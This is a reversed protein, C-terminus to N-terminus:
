FGPIAKKGGTGPPGTQKQGGPFKEYIKAKADVPFADHDALNKLWTGMTYEKNGEVIPAGLETALDDVDFWKGAMNQMLEAELQTLPKEATVTEDPVLRISLKQDAGKYAVQVPKLRTNGFKYGSLASSTAINEDALKDGGPALKYTGDPQLIPAKEWQMGPYNGTGLARLKQNLEEAAKVNDDYGLGAASRDQLNQTAKTYQSRNTYNDYLYATTLDIEPM